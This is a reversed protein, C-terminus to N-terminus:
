EMLHCVRKGGGTGYHEEWDKCYRMANTEAKKKSTNWSWGCGRIGTISIATRGAFAFHYKEFQRNFERIKRKVRTCGGIRKGIRDLEQGAAEISSAAYSYVPGSILPAAALLIVLVFKQM